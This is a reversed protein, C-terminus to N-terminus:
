EYRLADVPNSRAVRLTHYAVTLICLILAGIMVLVPIYFNQHIRYAFDNLWKDTGYWALPWAILNALLVIGLMYRGLMSIISFSSAGFSKRIGVEKTRRGTTYSAMGLLGLCSIIVALITFVLM